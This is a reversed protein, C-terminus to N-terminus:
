PIQEICSKKNDGVQGLIMENREKKGSNNSKLSLNESFTKCNKCKPYLLSM